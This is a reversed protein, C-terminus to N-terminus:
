PDLEVARRRHREKEEFEPDAARQRLRKRRASALEPPFVTQWDDLVGFGAVHALASRIIREPIGTHGWLERHSPWRGLEIGFIALEVCVEVQEDTLDGLRELPKLRRLGETICEPVLPEIQYLLELERKENYTRQYEMALETFRDARVGAKM